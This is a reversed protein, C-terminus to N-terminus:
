LFAFDSAVLSSLQKNSLTLSFDGKAIVVDGGVQRASAMMVSFDAFLPKNWIYIQDHAGPGTYFDTITTKAWPRISFIDYGAAGTLKSGVGGGVLVDNGDGGYLCDAGASSSDDIDLYDNAAGGYLTDTGTGGILTDNGDDGYLTDNGNEGSLSDDGAFGAIYDAAGGGKLVNNLANGYLQDSGAGGLVNEFNRIVDGAAIGGYVANTGLNVYVGTTADGYDLTDTGTGGDLYDAGAGGLIHDSDDGGYLTDDGGQGFILDQGSGGDAFDRGEDAWITDNGSGGYMTDHGSRGALIDDGAGGDLLDNGSRFSSFGSGDPADDLLDNGDGGYLGDSGDGGSLTDNGGNGQLMNAAANGLIKDHGSGGRANEILSRSDGRFQLANYVNGKVSSAALQLASFLSYGGPTLDIVANSNYNELNYTDNGGGDWITLFIKNLGPRGQSIGNVYTEGTLPNWSYVTNDSNTAFDAGYMEQLAAIDYMMFTQPAALVNYSMVTYETSDHQASMRPLNGGSDHSHKMGLSHGLEHLLLYFQYTGLVPTKDANTIWTDGGYVPVGPYYGHSRNIISGPEFASLKINADNRGAYVFTANTFSELSTLSMVGAAGKFIGHFATQSAQSLPKFGSASPNIWEYDWRSDPFSYTITNSAWQSGSFLALVDWDINTPAYYKTGFIPVNPLGAAVASFVGLPLGSINDSLWDSASSFWSGVRSFFPAGAALSAWKAPGILADIGRYSLSAYGFSGAGYTDHEDLSVFSPKRELSHSFSAWSVGRRDAVCAYCM